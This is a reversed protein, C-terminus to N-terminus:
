LIDKIKGDAEFYKTMFKRESNSSLEYTRNVFVGDSSVVADAEITLTVDVRNEVPGKIYQGDICLVNEQAQNGDIKVIKGITNGSTKDFLLDGEKVNQYIYDRVRKIEVTYTIPEMVANTNTKSLGHFKYVAGLGLVVVLLIVCCDIANFKGFLKGKEDILKM